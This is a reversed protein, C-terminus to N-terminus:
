KKCHENMEGIILLLLVLWHCSQDANVGVLQKNVHAILFQFIKIIRDFIQKNTGWNAICKIMFKWDSTLQLDTMESENM